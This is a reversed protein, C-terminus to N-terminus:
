YEYASGGLFERLLSYPPLYDVSIPHYRHLLRILRQAECYEPEGQEVMELLPLAHARLLGYEYQYASNINVDAYKQFPVIWKEEGRRVSDWRSLTQRASANRFQSDRVIRRILRNDTTPFIEGDYDRYTTLASIYVRFFNDAPADAGQLLLPNLAHIGEMLLINDDQLQLTKDTLLSKGSMFDYRPLRVAGGSLLTAIHEQLLPLDLAYISEWDPKGDEDKPARDGDVYYDDLSFSVPHLGQQQLAYTLKKCFTTKGSSSPGAILVSRVKAHVAIEEAVSSIAAEKLAESIKVMVDGGGFDIIGNMYDASLDFVKLHNGCIDSINLRSVLFNIAEAYTKPRESQNIQELIQLFVESVEFKESSKTNKCCNQMKPNFVLPHVIHLLLCKEDCYRFLLFIFVYFVVM